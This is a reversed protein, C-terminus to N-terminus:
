FCICKLFILPHIVCLLLQYISFMYLNRSIQILLDFQGKIPGMSPFTASGLEMRTKTLTGVYVKFIIIEVFHPQIVLVKLISLIFFNSKTMFFVYQGRMPGSSSFTVSDVGM